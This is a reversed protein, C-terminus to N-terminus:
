KKNILLKKILTMGGICSIVGGIIMWFTGPNTQGRGFFSSFQAEISNNLSNGYLLLILGAITM